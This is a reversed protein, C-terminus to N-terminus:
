PRVLLVRVSRTTGVWEAVQAELKQPHYFAGSGYSAEAASFSFFFFSSFFSALAAPGQPLASAAVPTQQRSLNQQVLKVLTVLNVAAAFPEAARAERTHLFVSQLKNM